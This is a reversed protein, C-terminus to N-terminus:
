TDHQHLRTRPASTTKSGLDKVRKEAVARTRRTDVRGLSSLFTQLSALVVNTEVDLGLALGYRKRDESLSAIGLQVADAPSAIAAPKGHVLIEGSEPRDAGFIAR